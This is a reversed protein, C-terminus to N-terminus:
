EGVSVREAVYWMQFDNFAFLIVSDGKSLRPEICITIGGEYESQPFHADKTTQRPVIHKHGSDDIKVLDTAVTAQGGVTISNTLKGRGLDKDSIQNQVEDGDRDSGEDKLTTYANMKAAAAQDLALEQAGGPDSMAGSVHSGISPSVETFHTDVIHTHPITVLHPRCNQGLILFEETLVVNNGIDIELPEVSAVTGIVLNDRKKTRNLGRIATALRVFDKESM